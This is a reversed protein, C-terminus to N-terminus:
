NFGMLQKLKMQNNPTQITMLQVFKTSKGFHRGIVENFAREPIKIRQELRLLMRSTIRM